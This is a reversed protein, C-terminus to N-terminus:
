ARPMDRFAGCIRNAPAGRFGEIEFARFSKACISRLATM